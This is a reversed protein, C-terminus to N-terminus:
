IKWCNRNKERLKAIELILKFEFQRTKEEAKNFEKKIKNKESM